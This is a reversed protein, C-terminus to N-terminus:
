FGLLAININAKLHNIAVDNLMGGGSKGADVSGAISHSGQMVVGNVVALIAKSTLNYTTVLNAPISIEMIQQGRVTSTAATATGIFTAQTMSNQIGRYINVNTTSGNVFKGYFYDTNNNGKSDIYIQGYSTSNEAYAAPVAALTSVASGGNNWVTYSDNISTITINYAESGSPFTSATPLLLLGYTAPLTQGAISTSSVVAKMMSGDTPSTITATGDSNFVIPYGNPGKNDAVWVGSANLSYDSNSQTPFGAPKSTTWAKTVPDLYTVISSTMTTEDASLGIREIYFYNTGTNTAQNYTNDSKFEYWGNKLSAKSAVYPDTNTPTIAAIVTQAETQTVPAATPVSASAFTYQVTTVSAATSTGSLFAAPDVNEKVSATVVNGLNVLNVQEQTATAPNSKIAAVAGVISNEIAQPQVTAIGDSSISNTKVGLTGLPVGLKQEAVIVATTTITNINKETTTTIAAKNLLATIAQDGSKAKVVYDASDLETFSYRFPDTSSGTGTAVMSKVVVGNLNRLEITPPTTLAVTKPVQKAVLSNISPFTVSGNITAKSVPPPTSGGGGGGGGCGGMVLLTTMSLVMLSWWTCARKSM